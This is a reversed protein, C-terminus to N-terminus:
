HKESLVKLTLKSVDIRFIGIPASRQMPSTVTVRVVNNVEEDRESYGNIGFIVYALSRKM